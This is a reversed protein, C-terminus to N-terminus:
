KLDWAFDYWYDVINSGNSGQLTLAKGSPAAFLSNTSGNFLISYLNLNKDGMLVVADDSDSKFVVRASELVGSLTNMSNATSFSNGIPDYTRFKPTSVNDSYVALGNLGSSKYAFDMSFQLGSVTNATLINNLPTSFTPTFSKIAYCTFNNPAKNDENCAMFEDAGKRGKVLVSLVNNTQTPFNAAPSWSGGGSGNASFIKATMYKTNEEYVLAGKSTNNLSWDFDAFRVTNATANVAHQSFTWNSTNYGNGNYYESETRKGQGSFIAMVENTGPRAKVVIFNPYSHNPQMSSQSGWSSGNWIMFKPTSTFDSYVAMFDGNKLYAGDFNQANLFTNAKWTSLLKVNGWSSGNYVQAYIYQNTGDFHRSIMVKENRDTSSYIRVVRLYRNTSSSDIDAASSASSWNGTLNNFVRYKISDSTTGGDAYVLIGGNLNNKAARWNTFERELSISKNKGRYNWDIQVTVKRTNSDVSIVKIKRTFDSKMDQSGSFNWVNGSFLLGHTLVDNPLQAFDSDRMNRVAELGEEAYAIAQKEMGSSIVYRSVSVFSAVMSTVIITFIAASVITEVLSFGKKIEFDLSEKLM